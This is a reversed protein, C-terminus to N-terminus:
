DLAEPYGLLDPAKVVLSFFADFVHRLVKHSWGALKSGVTM